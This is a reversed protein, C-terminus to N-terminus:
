DELIKGDPYPAPTWGTSCTLSDLAKVPRAPNGCAFVGPPLDRTVVAGAGVLTGAGITVFPAITVNVGVQVGRELRPGQMCRRSFACGPHPDNAITVGPALFVDDELITFQAVYVNCHIRVRNRIKCGYDITTNNWISVDHGLVNEERIVVHHGTELHDGIWSGEYITTGSRLLAGRGITLRRSPIKRSAPYGIRVDADIHRPDPPRIM